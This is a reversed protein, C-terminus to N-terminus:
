PLGFEYVCAGSGHLVDNVAARGARFTGLPTRDSDTTRVITGTEPLGYSDSSLEFAVPADSEGINVVAVGVRGDPSHWASTLITPLTKEFERVAGQQGAYISLRSMPFTAERTDLKPPRLFAGDRLFPLANRRLRALKIAFDMEERRDELHSPQFNAITPQQGWVFARAQELRFQTAYKRDLLELPHEPATEKPWLDDYPPRTLSSYNGYFTACDHYVAHFFPIPEWEGPAAYRELSVQLSLMADLHPLWAEGCGEGALAVPKVDACRGRIDSALAQFGQMWWAGGGLPHGHSADYCALSSCAQDMYIGDLGLGRVASEALGACKNRWFPTGMCMSACPSKMFTNYVEPTVKGERNKVAFREAGEDAWSRTDMGWLRQNMYVIAHLGKDHAQAVAARFPAEGERPPLYEPFGADYACGHWWHWFVSVPM